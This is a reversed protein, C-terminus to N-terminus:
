GRIVMLGLLIAVTILLYSVYDTLLGTHERRFTLFMRNIGRVLGWMVHRGTFYGRFHEFQPIVKDQDEGSIFIKTGDGVKRTGASANEAWKMLLYSILLGIVFAYIFYLADWYGFM